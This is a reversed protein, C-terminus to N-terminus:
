EKETEQHDQKHIQEKNDNIGECVEQVEQGNHVPDQLRNDAEEAEEM